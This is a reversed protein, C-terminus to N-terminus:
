RRGAPRRRTGPRPSPPPRTASTAPDRRLLKCVELGDVEPLMLDLLILDPLQQRAKKLAADGDDATTVEYGANKLNFGLVELADPEDDVVLIKAM